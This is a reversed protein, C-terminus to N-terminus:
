KLKYVKVRGLPSELEEEEVWLDPTELPGKILGANLKRLLDNAEYARKCEIVYPGCASRKISAIFVRGSRLDRDIYFSPM